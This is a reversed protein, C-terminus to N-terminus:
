RAPRSPCATWSDPQRPRAPHRHARCRATDGADPDKFGFDNAQLLYSTNEPLLRTTDAGAPPNNDDVPTVNIFVTSTDTGGKGDDVTVVFSDPGNYDRAPVYTWSGDPNVTVNGHSANTNRSYTLPDNDVDTARIQGSVPTDEPTSAQYNPSNPIHNPDPDPIATDDPGNPVTGAVPPDNVPTVTITVAVPASVNGDNDIVFFEINGPNGNFNPAPVFVLNAAEEPTLVTNNAIPTGNAKTLVGGTPVTVITFSVVNGDPDRGTLRVPLLTDEDVTLANPDAAPGLRPGSVQLAQRVTDPSTTTQLTAPTLEETIRGVRLGEALAGATRGAAPEIEIEDPAKVVVADPTLQVIGDQTTLIIDGKVVYDGLQLPRMKGDAGKIMAKGWLGTVKGSVTQIMTPM